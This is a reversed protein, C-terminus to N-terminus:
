SNGPVEMIEQQDETIEEGVEEMEEETTAIMTGLIIQNKNTEMIGIQTETTGTLTVQTTVEMIILTPTGQIIEMKDITAEAAM